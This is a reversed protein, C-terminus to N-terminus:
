QGLLRMLFSTRGTDIEASAKMGPHLRDDDPNELMAEVYIIGDGTAQPTVVRIVRSVKAPLHGHRWAPYAALEVEVPQGEQIFAIAREPLKLKVVWARPDFVQGLVHEPKVVEGPEYSNFQVEGDLPARLKRLEIEVEAAAIRKMVAQIRAEQVGVKAARLEVRSAKMEKLRSTALDVNRRADRLEQPSIAGKGTKEMLSLQERMAELQREARFIEEHHVVAELRQTERLELLEAQAVLLDSRAQLLAAQFPADKLQILVDGKAVKTGSRLAWDAIAGAVSPRIEAEEDTMLYGDGEVWRTVPIVAAALILLLVLGLTGLLINRPRWRKRTKNRPPRGNPQPPAKPDDTM